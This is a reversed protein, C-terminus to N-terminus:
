GGGPASPPMAPATGNAKGAANACLICASGLAIALAYTWISPGRRTLADAAVSGTLGLLSGLYVGFRAAYGSLGVTRWWVPLSDVGIGIFLVVALSQDGRWGAEVSLIYAVPLAVAWVLLQRALAWLRERLGNTM